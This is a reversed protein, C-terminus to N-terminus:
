AMAGAYFEQGDCRTVATLTATNDVLKGDIDVIGDQTLIFHERKKGYAHRIADKASSGVRPTMDTHTVKLLELFEERTALRCDDSYEKSDSVTIKPTRIETPM